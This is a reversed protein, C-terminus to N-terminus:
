KFGAIEISIAAHVANAKTLQASHRSQNNYKLVLQDNLLHQTVLQANLKRM